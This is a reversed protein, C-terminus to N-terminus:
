LTALRSGPSAFFLVFSAEKSMSLAANFTPFRFPVFLNCNFSGRCFLPLEEGCSGVYFFYTRIRLVSGRGHVRCILLLFAEFCHFHLLKGCRNGDNPSFLGSKYSDYEL